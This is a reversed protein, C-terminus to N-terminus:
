STLQWGGIGLRLAPPFFPDGGADGGWRALFERQEEIPHLPGRSSSEDHELTVHPTYVVRYGAQRIRLCLDVDNYVVGLTEDFGGVAEWASRRILSCAGTVASVERNCHLLNTM